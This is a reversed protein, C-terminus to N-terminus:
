QTRMDNWHYGCNEPPLGMLLEEVVLNELEEEQSDAHIEKAKCLAQWPTEASVAWVYPAEGDERESGSVTVTFTKLEGQM